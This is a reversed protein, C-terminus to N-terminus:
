YLMEIYVKYSLYPDSTVKTSPSSSSAQKKKTDQKASVENALRIFKNGFLHTNAKLSLSTTTLDGVSEYSLRTTFDTNLVDRTVNEALFSYGCESDNNGATCFISPAITTVSSAEAFAKSSYIRMLPEFSFTAKHIISQEIDRKYVDGDVKFDGKFTQYGTAFIDFSFNPSFKVYDGKMEGTFGIGTGANYALFEGSSKVLEYTLDYTSQSAGVTIYSSLFSSAATRYVMYGGINVRVTDIEGKDTKSQERNRVSVEVFSGYKNYLDDTTRESAWVSSFTGTENGKGDDAFSFDVSAITVENSYCKRKIEKYKGYGNVVKDTGSVKVDSKPSDDDVCQETYDHSTEDSLRNVAGRVLNRSTRRANDLSVSLDERIMKRTAEAAKKLMAEYDTVDILTTTASPTGTLTVPGSAATITIILTENDDDIGDNITPISITGTDSGAAIVLSGSPATYDTGSTATGNDNYTLTTDAGAAASLTVTFVAEDGEDVTAPATISISSNDNDAINVSQSNDTTSIQAIGSTISSLTIVVTENDEDVSDDLVPITLVKSSTGNDITISGSLATFDTGSTATGGVNYAVIIDGAAAPSSLSVTVSANDPGTEDGHDPTGVSVMLTDNDIITLTANDTSAILAPGSTISDIRLVLTENNEVLSDNVASVTVTANDDGATITLPSSGSLSYDGASATSSATVVSYTFIVDEEVDDTLSFTFLGDTGDENANTTAAISLTVNDDNTITLTANDPSGLTAPGTLSDINIIVTENDEYNSDDIISIPIPQSTTNAPVTVTGSLATFDTGSTATGSVSYSVTIPVTSANDLNIHLNGTASPGEATANDGAMTVSAQDDSTVTISANDNSGITADGSTVATLTVTLTENDEIISDNIITIDFTTNDSGGPITVSGSGADSYDGATVTGSITYSIDIGAHADSNASVLFTGPTSPEAGDNVASISITANDNDAITLTRPSGTINGPGSVISVLTLEVTEDGEVLADDVADIVLSSNTSGRPLTFEGSLGAYDTNNDATGGLSYAIVIDAQAAAGASIAFSGNASGNDEDTDTTAGLFVNVTDNDEISLTASNDSGIVASGATINSLSLIVTENDEALADNLVDIQVDETFSGAAITVSKTVNAYDSGETATGGLTFSVSIDNSSETDTRITFSTDTDLPESGDLPSSDVSITATDNDTILRTASNPTGIAVPGTVASLTAIITETGEAINDDIVEYSLTKTQEGTNFTVTNSGLNYDLSSATGTSTVSATITSAAPQDLSITFTANDTAAEAGNTGASITVLAQDNDIITNTASSPSTIIAPGSIVRNLDIVITEGADDDSDNLIPINIQSSLSGAPITVTGSPPTYDTSNDATSANDFYEIEIPTTATDSLSVVFTADTGDESGQTASAITVDVTDDSSITISATTNDPDIIGGAVSLSNITLIITEVGEADSDQVVTLTVSESMDTDTEAITVSNNISGVDDYYDGSAGYDATGTYSYNITLGGVVNNTTQFTFQTPPFGGESINNVAQVSVTPIDDDSITITATNPSGIVVSANDTTTLTLIVTEDVESLNDDTTIIQVTESTDGATFEVFGNLVNFDDEGVDDQATGTIDYNVRVTDTPPTDLEITFFGTGGETVDASNTVTADIAFATAPALIGVLLIVSFAALM